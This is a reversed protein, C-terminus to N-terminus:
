NGEICRFEADVLRSGAFGSATLARVPRLLTRRSLGLIVAATQGTGAGWGAAVVGGALLAGAIIQKLSRMTNVNTTGKGQQRLSDRGPGISHGVVSVSGCVAQWMTVFNMRFEQAELSLVAASARIEPQSHDDYATPM